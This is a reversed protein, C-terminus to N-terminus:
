PPIPYLETILYVPHSIRKNNVSNLRKLLLPYIDHCTIVLNNDEFTGTHTTFLVGSWETRPFKRQLYRIKEEVKSPVILKYTASKEILPPLKKKIEETNKQISTKM